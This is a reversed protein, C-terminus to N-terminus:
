GGLKRALDRLESDPIDGVIVFTAGGSQWSYIQVDAREMKGLRQPNVAVKLQYLTVRHGGGSYHQVLVPQGAIQQIRASELNFQGGAPLQVPQYKGREILRQLLSAPTIIRAGKHELVFDTRDITPNLNVQSFEFSAEISGARDYMERKLIMGSKPEIWLKDFVNGNKDSLTVLTTQLGAIAGGTATEFTLRRNVLQAIRGFAQERRPPMIQLENRGPLYHRREKPTEVIIQGKLESDDPFSIRSRRGDTIVFETHRVRNAENRTEVLRTGSYKIKGFAALARRLAPPVQAPVTWPGARHGQGNGRPIPRAQAFTACALSLSLILLCFRTM